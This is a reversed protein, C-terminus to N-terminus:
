PAQSVKALSGDNPYVQINDYYIEADMSRGFLGPSGITNPTEDAAEITWEAPEQEGRPWVKARLVAKGGENSASFKMTYWTDPKWEFSVTKAFRLELQPTWSRIQLQQSPGMMDLTYRQAILGIDPIKGNKVAGRVDAQITYDHLDTHGMWAQSRTGKPITTVKILVPEGDLEGAKHRYNAGIWTVPVKGDTFDFKWPLPPVTRVRATGTVGEAEATLLTASHSGDTPAVFAGEADVSGPGDLKLKAPVTRLYRGRANYLRAQYVQREGPKLLVEVPVLQLQAPKTDEAAPIEQPAEPRPETAPKHDKKALCYLGGNTPLIVKGHSIIPSGLIEENNLRTNHVVDVGKETPKLIYWRGSAEGVFIKGDGYVMSGTMVTGFKKQFLKKGTKPDLVHLRANDEFAYLRDDIVLPASKGVTMQLNLWLEKPRNNEVTAGDLAFLAGMKTADSVNEESHGLFVKENVVVPTTNIGRTSVEYKWLIKGTRPQIAYVAGDGAGFVVAAEGKFYTLVPSSYTTDEPLLRTSTLWTAVGNRKDFAVYRHAPRAMEGWGTMVGSILVVDEFVVPFNTRGGYTTLMGYEESMSHSWITEGTEGNICQFYGCVGLAFVNGTEPDGVVSSWGVRTDPVDSLFVNFTNEWLIKGTNLDVCVVKEGERTTGPHNRALMYLKGNLVIPTSRGALEENKWLVNEGTDPDWSDILGTERSIGNMEPGRWHPWDYPAIKSLEQAAADSALGYLSLSILSLVLTCARLLKM